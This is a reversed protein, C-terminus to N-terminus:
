RNTFALFWLRSFISQCNRLLTLRHRRPRNYEPVGACLSESTQACRIQTRTGKCSLARSKKVPLFPPAIKSKEQCRCDAKSTPVVMRSEISLEKKFQSKRVVTSADPARPTGRAPMDPLANNPNATVAATTAGFGADAAFKEQSEAALPSHVVAPVHVDQLAVKGLLPPPLVMVRADDAARM